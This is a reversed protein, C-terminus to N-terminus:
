SLEREKSQIALYDAHWITAIEVAEVFTAAGTRLVLAYAAAGEELGLIQILNALRADTTQTDNNM